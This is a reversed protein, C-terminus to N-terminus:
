RWREAELVRQSLFLGLVIMSAFYVLSEITIVGKMMDRVQMVPSLYNLVIEVTGGFSQAPSHIVYLLLLVVMSSLGSVVQSNSFSSVAMGISAFAFACLTMGLLGSLIPLLEPAPDGYVMLVVPYLFTALMMTAILSAVGLFKGVVIDFVSVPSTLLLEFTGRKKEDAIMRMTLLPVLFVLVVIMTEFMREVVLENLNPPTGQMYPTASYRMAYENFYILLVSFFYGALLLFGTISFYALPSVFFSLMERRAIAVINSM